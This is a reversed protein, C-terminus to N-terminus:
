ISPSITYPALYVEEVGNATYLESFHMLKEAAIAAVSGGPFGQRTLKDNAAIIAIDQAEQTKHAKVHWIDVNVRTYFKSCAHTVVLWNFQEPETMAAVLKDLHEVLVPAGLVHPRDSQDM